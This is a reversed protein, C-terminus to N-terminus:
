QFLLVHLLMFGDHACKLSQLFTDFLVQITSPVIEIFHHGIIWCADFRPLITTSLLAKSWVAKLHPNNTCLSSVDISALKCNTPAPIKRDTTWRIFNRFMRMHVSMHCSKAHVVIGTWMVHYMGVRSQTNARQQNPQFLRYKLSQLFTDFLVQITSPVIEIFHHGIIWCADFRPLITTSLLAKSWVAKLHPNNTCLSSVDISALKCNTPAPIKRDTTWRIFILDTVEDVHLVSTNSMIVVSKRNYNFPMLIPLLHETIIRVFKIGTM